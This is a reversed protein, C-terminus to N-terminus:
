NLARVSKGGMTNLIRIEDYLFEAGKFSIQAQPPQKVLSRDILKEVTGALTISNTTM